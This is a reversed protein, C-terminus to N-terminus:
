KQRNQIAISMYNREFIKNSSDPNSSHIEPPPHSREALQAVVMAM